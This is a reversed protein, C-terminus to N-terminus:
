QQCLVVEEQKLNNQMIQAINELIYEAADGGQEMIERIIRIAKEAKALIQKKKAEDNTADSLKIKEAMQRTSWANTVAKELWEQPNSTASALRHHYFSLDQARNEPQPFATFTRIMERVMAPSLGTYSSIDKIKMKLAERMILLAAAQGWKGQEEREKEVTFVQLLEELSPLKDQPKGIYINYYSNKAEQVLDACLSLWSREIARTQVYFFSALRGRKTHEYKYWNAKDKFKCYILRCKRGAKKRAYGKEKNQSM